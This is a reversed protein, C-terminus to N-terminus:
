DTVSQRSLTGATAVIIYIYNYIDFACGRARRNGVPIAPPPQLSCRTLEFYTHIYM